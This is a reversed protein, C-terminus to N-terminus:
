KITTEYVMNQRTLRSDSNMLKKVEMVWDLRRSLQQKSLVQGVYYTLPGFYKGSEKIEYNSQYSRCAELITIDAVGKIQPIAFNSKANIRPRYDKGKSSFGKKTGREYVEDEEMDDEGRSSGGAHCADIVVCIFGKTGIAKRIQQFYVNLEDDTIHNQGEYVYKKYVMQADYPVISEDWGDEEDGNIDEFPQGHCSFHIYVLDGPRCSASLKNLEKRIRKATASKNCIKLTEFGQRTLVSSIIDADNSGHIIGWANDKTQPYESIGFILARKTQASMSCGTTFLTLFFAFRLLSYYTRNLIEPMLDFIYCNSM